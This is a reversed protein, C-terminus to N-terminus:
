KPFERTTQHNLSWAGVTIPLPPLPPRTTGAQTQDRTPATLDWKGHPM